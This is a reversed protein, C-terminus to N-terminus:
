DSFLCYGGWIFLFVVLLAANGLFWIQYWPISVVPALVATAVAIGAEIIAIGEKVGEAM